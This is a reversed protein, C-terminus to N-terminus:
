LSGSKTFTVNGQADKQGLFRLSQVLDQRQSDRVGLKADVQYTKDAALTFSGNVSLPGEDVDSVVGSIGTDTTTLDVQFDGIKAEQLVTVAADRWDIYGEAALLAMNEPSYVLEDFKLQFNGGLKAPMAPLWGQLEGAEIQGSLDHAVVDGALVKKAVYAEAWSANNDFSVKAEMRGLFLAWPRLSWQVARLTKGDIVVADAKGSWISGKLTYAKVNPMKDKFFHYARDAPLTLATFVLYFGFVIAISSVVRKM